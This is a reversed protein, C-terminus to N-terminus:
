STPRVSLKTEATPRPPPGQLPKIPWLFNLSSVALRQRETPERTCVHLPARASWKPRANIM